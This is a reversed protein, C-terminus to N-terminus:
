TPFSSDHTEHNTGFPQIRINLAVNYLKYYVNRIGLFTQLYVPFFTGLAILLVKSLEGFGFWMIFLPTIALLPITRLMQIRPNLYDESKKNMGVIVGILLGFFGGLAFGLM